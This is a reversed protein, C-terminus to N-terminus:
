EQSQKPRIKVGSPLTVWGQEDPKSPEDKKSGKAGAAPPKKDEPKPELDSLKYGLAVELPTIDFGQAEKAKALKYAARRAIERQRALKDTIVDPHMGVAIDAKDFEAKETATVASGFLQNRIVNKREAYDSWWQAQEKWGIGRSGAVNQIDGIIGAYKGAFDPQFREALNDLNSLASGKEEMDSLLKDSIEKKKPEVGLKSRLAKPRDEEPLQGMLREFESPELGMKARIARVRDAEPLKQLDLDFQSPQRVSDLRAKELALIDAGSVGGTGMEGALKARALQLQAMKDQREREAQAARQLPGAVANGAAGLSEMFGGGRTPAALAGSVQFLMAARDMDSMGPTGYKQAQQDIMALEAQKSAYKAQAERMLAEKAGEFSFNQSLPPM